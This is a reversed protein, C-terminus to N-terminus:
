WIWLSNSLICFAELNSKDYYDWSSYSLRPYLSQSSSMWTHLLCPVLFSIVRLYFFIMMKLNYRVNMPRSRASSDSSKINRSWHASKIFSQPDWIESTISGSFDKMILSSFLFLILSNSTFKYFSFNISSSDFDSVSYFSYCDSHPAFISSANVLKNNSARWNTFIIGFMTTWSMFDSISSSLFTESAKLPIFFLRMSKLFRTAHNITIEYM